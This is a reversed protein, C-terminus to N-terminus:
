IVDAFKREMRKFLYLGAAFCVASVGGAYWLVSGRPFPTGLLSARFAELPGSVPNLYFVTRWRSPVASASYATPGAYLLIQLLVPLIYQVDRYSVSLATTMLGLGLALALLLAMWVPVLVISAPPVVGYIVLMVALMAAAVAFDVMVSPVASLPLILRPFYVKSILQSNGTLSAAAKTVTNNFVNWGLLGTYALLFPPVGDTPLKAVVGFVFTFVGAAMLPQLVVWIAGLATQKYRLKLDRVTLTWLLERFEWVERANLRSWGRNPRMLLLPKRTPEGMESAGTEDTLGVPAGNVGDMAIEAADRTTEMSM